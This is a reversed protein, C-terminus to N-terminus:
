PLISMLIHDPLPKLGVDGKMHATGSWNKLVQFVIEPHGTLGPGHHPGEFPPKGDDMKNDIFWWFYFGLVSKRCSSSSPAMCVPVDIFEAHRNAHGNPFDRLVAPKPDGENPAQGKTLLEELFTLETPCAGEPDPGKAGYYGVGCGLPQGDVFWGGFTSDHDFEEDRPTWDEDPYLWNADKGLDRSRAVQIFAIGDCACHTPCHQPALTFELKIKAGHDNPMADAQCNFKKCLLQANVSTVQTPLLLLVGVVSIFTWMRKM